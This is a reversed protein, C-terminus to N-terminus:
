RKKARRKSRHRQVPLYPGTPHQRALAIAEPNGCMENELSCGARLVFWRDLFEDPSLDHEDSMALAWVEMLELTAATAAAVSEDTDGACSDRAGSHALGDRDEQYGLTIADVYNLVHVVEHLDSEEHRLMHSFSDQVTHAARAFYYAPWWVPVPVEGYFDVYITARGFQEEEPLQRAAVAQELSRRISRRTGAVAAANGEPGDDDPARLAHLYQGEAEPDAHLTRLQTINAASHGGTDPSRVGVVLSLLLMAETDSSVEIDLQEAVGYAVRLWKPSVTVSRTPRRVEALLRGFAQASIVEHCAPSFGTSITFARASTTDGVFLTAFLAAFLWRM